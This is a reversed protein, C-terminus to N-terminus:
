AVAKRLSLKKMKEILTTRQLGLLRATASVCGDSSELACEIMRVEIDRLYNRLSVPRGATLDACFADTDSSRPDTAACGSPVVVGSQEARQAPAADPAAFCVLNHQVMHAEVTRDAFLICARDFVTRLERVNGPWAQRQLFRIAEADFDPSRTEPQHRARQRKMHAILMPIDDARDSLRPVTLPFTDIRHYLDERFAGNAVLEALNRHTATVLRFDVVRAAGGLRQVQRSELVRLLKAQLGLPMDGIEDLFLTGGSAQEVLGIRRKEAGTFAGREYGFLESELLETPIAACNVAVLPGVRRSARHVAEAVLEKGTGTEGTILVPADSPAVLRILDKLRRMAPATGILFSDIDVSPSPVTEITALDATWQKTM